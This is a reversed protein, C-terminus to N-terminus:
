AQAVNNQHSYSQMQTKFWPIHSKWHREKQVNKKQSDTTEQLEM